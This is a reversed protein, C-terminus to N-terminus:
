FRVVDKIETPSTTIERPVLAYIQRDDSIRV